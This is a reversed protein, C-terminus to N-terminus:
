IHIQRCIEAALYRKITNKQLFGDPLIEIKLGDEKRSNYGNKLFTWFEHGTIKDLPRFIKNEIIEEPIIGNQVACEITGAFTEHGVVDTFVDNYVNTPFFNMTCIIFALAESRSLDEDPREIKEFLPEKEVVFNGQWKEPVVPKSPKEKPIWSKYANIEKVINLQEMEKAIIGAFYYAGYENTHTYDSPYFYKKSEEKGQKQIFEKSREHLKLVPIQKQFGIDLCVKDYEELLDNYIGDSGRWSNRALPTVLVPLAGKGKIEEIYQIINTRYGEYAKLHTLKQDNHAFQFLCIDGPQIRDYLIQYHGEMRFSETTLGSHAHNSVAYTNGLYASLMQGWGSYSSGPRYPYEASQDTVTSDGAIYLTTCQCAEIKVYSLVVGEGIVTLDISTDEIVESQNRAIIPSINICYTREIREGKKMSQQLYLRRRGIFIFAEKTGEEAMIEITVLYNGEKPVDCKFLLPVTGEDSFAYCGEETQLNTIIETNGYWPAEEFGSNMEPIQLMKNKKRTAATVFGAQSGQQYEQMPTIIHKGMKEAKKSFWYEMRYHGMMEVINM